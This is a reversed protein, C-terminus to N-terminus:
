PSLIADMASLTQAELDPSEFNRTGHQGNALEVIAWAEPTNEAFGTSWPESDPHVFLLPITSLTDLNDDVSNQNETYAGPSLWIIRSVDPLDDAHGVAYDMTSTTGNSAGVLALRNMDAGCSTPLDSLFRVAAEIDLRGGPGEYADVAAGSSDGAGRRDINLVVYGLDAIHDRIGQPYSTRDWSPPIMHALVVAGRADDGLQLDATLMVGDETEFTVVRTTTDCAEGGDETATDDMSTDEMTADDMTADASATDTEADTTTDGITADAGPTNDPVDTTSSCGAALSTAGALLLALPLSRM